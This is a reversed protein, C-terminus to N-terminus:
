VVVASEGGVLSLRRTLNINIDRLNKEAEKSPNPQNFPTGPSASATICLVPLLLDLRLILLQILIPLPISLPLLISLLGRLLRPVLPMPLYM